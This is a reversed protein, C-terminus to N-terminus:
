RTLLKVAKDGFKDWWLEGMQVIKKLNSESTDDLRRNVGVLASNVRLYDKGILDGALEHDLSSEVMLGFLDHMLWGVIGWNKSAEGKLPRKSLGTGISLM